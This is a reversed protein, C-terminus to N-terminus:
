ALIFVIHKGVLDPRTQDHCADFIIVLDFKDTWDGSLKRGDMQMFALNDYTEGNDKRFLVNPHVADFIHFLM